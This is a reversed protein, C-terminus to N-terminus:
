TPWSSARSGTPGTRRRRPWTRAEKESRELERGNPSRRAERIRSRLALSKTRERVLDELRRTRRKLAATRWRVGGGALLVAAVAYLLYAWATRWPSRPIVFSVEVPGSVVGAGDRGWVRFRYSGATLHSYRQVPDPLWDSPRDQWGELQVSYRTDAERFYSLLVYEFAVEEPREALRLPAGGPALERGDVTIREVHLPSPGLSPEPVSPDLWSVATSTGVWLRGARDVLSSSQNCEDSALGDRSTFTYVGYANPDGRRATLRAMGRNTALYIRGRADELIQYVVNSPLRAQAARKTSSSGVRSEPPSISGSPEANTGIWLFRKGGSRTERLANIWNNRLPSTRTNYLVQQGSSTQKGLSWRM